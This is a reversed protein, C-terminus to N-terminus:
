LRCPNYIRSIERVKKTKFNSKKSIWNRQPKRHLFFYFDALFKFPLVPKKTAKTSYALKATQGRYFLGGHGESM